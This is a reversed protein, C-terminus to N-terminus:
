EADETREHDDWEAPDIDDAAGTLPYDSSGIYYDDQWTM